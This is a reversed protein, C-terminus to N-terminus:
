RRRFAASSRSCDVLTAVDMRSVVPLRKCRKRPDVFPAFQGIGAARRQADLQDQRVPEIGAHEVGGQHQGDVRSIEAQLAADFAPQVAQYALVAPPLFVAPLEVEPMQM